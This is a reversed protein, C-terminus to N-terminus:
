SIPSFDAPRGLLKERLDTEVFERAAEAANLFTNAATEGKISRSTGSANLFTQVGSTIVSVLANAGLSRLGSDTLGVVVSSAFGLIEGIGKEALPVVCGVTAGMMAGTAGASFRLGDGGDLETRLDLAQRKIKEFQEVTALAGNILAGSALADSARKTEANVADGGDFANERNLPSAAIENPTQPVISDRATKPVITEQPQKPVLAEQVLEDLLLTADTNQCLALSLGLLAASKPNILIQSNLFSESTEILAAVAKESLDGGILSLLSNASFEQNKGNASLFIQLPFRGNKELAVGRGAFLENAGFTLNLQHRALFVTRENKPLANLFTQLHKDVTRDSNIVNNGDRNPILHRNAILGRNASFENAGPTQNTQQRAAFGSKENKPANSLNETRSFIEAKKASAFESKSAHRNLMELLDGYRSAVRPELKGNVYKEVVRQESMKKVDDWFKKPESQFSKFDKHQRALSILDNLSKNVPNRRQGLHQKEQQADASNKTRETQNQAFQRNPAVTDKTQELQRESGVTNKTQQLQNQSVVATKPQESQHRVGDTNKTREPQHPIDVTNKTQEPQKQVIQKQEFQQPANSKARGAPAHNERRSVLASSLTSRREAAQAAHWKKDFIQAGNAKPYKSSNEGDTKPLGEQEAKKGRELSPLPAVVLPKIQNQGDGM